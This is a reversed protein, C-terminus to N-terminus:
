KTGYPPFLSAGEAMAGGASFKPFMWNDGIVPPRQHFSHVRKMMAAPWNLRASDGQPQRQAL